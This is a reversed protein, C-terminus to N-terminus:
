LPPVTYRAFLHWGIWAWAALLLLRGARRSAFRVTLELMGVIAFGRRAAVELALAVVALAAWCIAVTM